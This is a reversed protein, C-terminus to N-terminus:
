TLAEAPAYAAYCHRQIYEFPMKGNGEGAYNRNGLRTQTGFDTGWSNRFLFVGRPFPQVPNETYAILCVAHYEEATTESLPLREGGFVEPSYWDESFRVLVAVPWGKALLAAIGDTDHPNLAVMRLRHAAAEKRADAERVNGLDNQCGGTRYGCTNATCQGIDALVRAAAEFTTGECREGLGDIAKCEYYLHQQSLAIAQGRRRHVHENVTTFAFAVCTGRSSGQNQVLPLQEVPFVRSPDIHRGFGLTPLSLSATYAQPQPPIAGTLPLTLNANPNRAAFSKAVAGVQTNAPDPLAVSAASGAMGQPAAASAAPPVTPTSSQTPAVASGGEGGKQTTCGNIGLFASSALAGELFERRTTKAM